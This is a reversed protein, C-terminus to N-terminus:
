LKNLMQKIITHVKQSDTVLCPWNTRNQYSLWHIIMVCNQTIEKKVSCRTTQYHGKWNNVTLRYRYSCVIIPMFTDMIMIYTTLQPIYTKFSYPMLRKSDKKAHGFNKWQTDVHNWQTDMQVCLYGKFFARCNRHAHSAAISFHVSNMKAAMHQSSCISVCGM